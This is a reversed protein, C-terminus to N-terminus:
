GDGRVCEVVLNRATVEHGFVDPWRVPDGIVRYDKGRVTVTAGRLGVGAYSRPFYLTLAVEVGDPRVNDVANSQSGPAVLVDDVSESTTEWVEDGGPDVGTRTRTSVVVTEGTM